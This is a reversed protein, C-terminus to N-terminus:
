RAYSLVKRRWVADLTAPPIGLGRAIGQQLDQSTPGTRFLSRVATVGGHEAALQFLVAGVAYRPDLVGSPAPQLLISDLTYSWHNKLYFALDRMLAPYMRGQWGGAWTACGEVALWHTRGPIVLPTLVVHAIEHLYGEQLTASGSFVIRNVGDARGAIGSAQGAEPVFDLGQLRFMEEPTEAVYYTLPAPALAFAAALSDAFRASRAARRRDLRSWSPYVFTISGVPQRVWHATLRDIANSLVWRNGDRQAYVRFVGLLKVENDPQYLDGFLTRIVYVSDEGPVVPAITVVSIVPFARPFGQFIYDRGLVANRYSRQESPSWVKSAHNSDPRDTLFTMWTRFIERVPAVSTDVGFGLTVRFPISDPTRQASLATSAWLGALGLLGRV